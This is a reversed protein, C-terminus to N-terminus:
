QEHSFAEEVMEKVIRDKEEETLEPLKAWAKKQRATPPKKLADLRARVTKIDLAM